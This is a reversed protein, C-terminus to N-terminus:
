KNISIKIKKARKFAAATANKFSQGVRKKNLIKLGAETTGKPTAIKERFIKPSGQGITNLASTLGDFLQSVIKYSRNNDLGCLIGGDVLGEFAVSLFAPASAGLATTIDVESDNKLHIIQGTKQFINSLTKEFFKNDTYIGTVGNLTAIGLNPMIRAIIANSPLFKKIFSIKVGAVTSILYKPRCVAIEKLTQVIDKPKVAVIVVKSQRVCEILSSQRQFNFKKSLVKLSTINKDFVFLKKPDVTQSNILGAILASGLNGCGIISIRQNQM